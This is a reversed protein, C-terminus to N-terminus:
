KHAKGQKPAPAEGVTFPETPAAEKSSAEESGPAPAEGVALPTLVALVDGYQQQLRDIEGPPLTRAEGPYLTQGLAIIPLAGIHQVKLWTM